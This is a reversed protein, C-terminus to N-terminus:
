DEWVRVAREKDNEKEKSKEERDRKTDAMVFRHM